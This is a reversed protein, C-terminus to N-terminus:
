GTPPMLSFSPPIIGPPRAGEWSVTLRRFWPGAPSTKLESLTVAVPYTGIKGEACNPHCLKEWFTGQGTATTGTWNAWSMREVGWGDDACALSIVAPKVSLRLPLASNCQAVVGPLPRAAAPPPPAPSPSAPSTAAVPAPATTSTTAPHSPSAATHQGCATLTVALGLLASAALTKRSPDHSARM